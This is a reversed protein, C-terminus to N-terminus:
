CTAPQDFSLMRCNTDLTASLGVPITLNRKGHGAGFGTIVPIDVGDFLDQVLAVIDAYNGCEEFSGLVLGSIKKFCGALKLHMLMRDIRYVAEGRDELFLIHGDGKIHYATGALHCLSTLNGGIVLGTATGPKLIVSDALSIEVRKSSTLAKKLSDRSAQDSENLTTVLPGHFTVLGCKAYLASLLITMDSFGVFIKPNDRITQYDLMSLLRISGYGGRACLIAKIHDDAFYRNIHGARISDPASLYGTKDFLGEPLDVRFGMAELITIGEYLKERDFPSAPAVMGVTDGPLLRPPIRIPNSKNM